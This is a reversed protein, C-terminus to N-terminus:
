VLSQLMVNPLTLKVFYKQGSLANGEILVGCLWVFELYVGFYVRFLSQIFEM